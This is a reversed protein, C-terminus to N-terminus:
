ANRLGEVKYGVALVTIFAFEDEGFHQALIEINEDGPKESDFVAYILSRYNPYKKKASELASSVEYPLRVLM